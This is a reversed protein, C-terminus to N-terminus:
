ERIDVAVYGDSLSGICWATDPGWDLKRVLAFVAHEHNRQADLVYDWAWVLRLGGATEAVVRAGKTDTPGLYRTRIAQCM